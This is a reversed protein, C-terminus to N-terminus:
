RARRAALRRRRRHRPRAPRKRRTRRHRRVPRAWRRSARRPVGPLPPARRRRHLGPAAPGPRTPRPGAAAVPIQPNRGAVPTRPPPAAAPARRPGASRLPPPHHRDAPHPRAEGLRGPVRRAPRRGGGVPANDTPTLLDEANDLLLLVPLGPLVLRELLRLRQEWPPGADILEAVIQRLPHSDPLGSRTCYEWLGLRIEDLILDVRTSGSIPVVLGAEPGLHDIVEVALSSKGIGGIGHLVVGAVGRRLDRLIARLEPRRGVFDGVRRIMGGLQLRSETRQPAARATGDTSDTRHYLPLAPGAQFLAPTAWEAWVVRPDEAPLTRRHDELRRRITSLETLPTPEPRRALEEYLGAALDTAYRDTVPASMAVVAPVGAHLLDRALGPLAREGESSVGGAGEGAAGNSTTPTRATLATSCGALVVLPVGQDPVLIDRVFRAADVVEAAGTDSELVLFGPRAHCSIHLVHFREEALAARIAHPSGWNLVRVYAGSTRRTPDVAALIRGLEAEYDLLEGGGGSDPSAVVALIRLPGPVSVALPDGVPVARYQEVGTQLVLPVEQGPLILTEWPLDALEPDDVQVALRLVRGGTSAAQQALAHGAPGNLFRDGLRRGIDLLKAHLVGGAQGEARLLTAAPRSRARQLEQVASALGYDIGAPEHRAEATGTSFVV